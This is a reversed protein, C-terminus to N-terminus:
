IADVYEVNENKIKRYEATVKDKTRELVKDLRRLLIFPLIIKGWETKKFDDRLIEKAGWALCLRM